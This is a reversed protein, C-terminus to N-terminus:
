FMFPHFFLIDSVHVDAETFLRVTAEHLYAMVGIVAELMFVVMLFVAFQV